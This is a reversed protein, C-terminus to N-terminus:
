ETRFDIGNHSGDCFPKNASAGCRCLATQDGRFIVKDEANRIELPGTLILPGNAAAEITLRGGPVTADIRGPRAKGDDKFAVSEHSGDCFPRYQSAGCRCLAVRTDVPNGELKIFEVDGRVYLPGDAAITIVNDEPAVEAPGSDRREYHLAGTPCRRVVEAVREAANADADIWPKRTSDFVEPLGHVCEEAHICRPREYHVVIDQGQYQLIKREM